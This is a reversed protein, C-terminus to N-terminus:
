LHPYIYTICAHTHPHTSPLLPPPPLTTTTDQMQTQALTHTQIQWESSQLFMKKTELTLLLIKFWSFTTMIKVMYNYYKDLFKWM